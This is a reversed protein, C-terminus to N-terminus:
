KQKAKFVDFMKKVEAQLNDVKHPVPELPNNDEDFPIHLIYMDGMKLNRNHQLLMYMYVNIQISYINFNCDQLHSLPSLLKKPGKTPHYWAFFDLKENTKYDKINIKGNVVEVLDATGCIKYKKSWIMKETYVTNDELTVKDDEKIGGVTDVFSVKCPTQEITIGQKMELYKDEMMKHFKTGKDAGKNKKDDWEKLLDEKSVKMKKAKKEAIANWDVYEQFSKIFYTVPTFKVGEDVYEHSSEIFKM